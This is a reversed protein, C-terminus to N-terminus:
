VGQWIKTGTYREHIATRRVQINEASGISNSSSDGMHIGVNCVKYAAAYGLGPFLSFFRGPISAAAKDKFIISNLQSASTVRGYNSMLRKAITDVQSHTLLILVILYPFTRSPFSNIGCYWRLRNTGILTKDQRSPSQTIKGAGTVRAATSEKQVQTASGIPAM